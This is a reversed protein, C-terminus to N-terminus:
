DSDAIQQFGGGQVLYTYGAKEFCYAHIGDEAYTGSREHEVDFYRGGRPALTIGDSCPPHEVFRPATPGASSLCVAIAVANPDPATEILMALDGQGDGDLDGLVITPDEHQSAAWDRVPPAVAAFRWRAWRHAVAARCRHAFAEPAARHRDVKVAAGCGLTGAVVAGLVIVRM